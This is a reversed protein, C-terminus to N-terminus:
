SDDGDGAKLSTAISSLSGQIQRLSNLTHNRTQLHKDDYDIEQLAEAWQDIDLIFTDVFRTRSSLRGSYSATVTYRRPLATNKIYEPASDLLYSIGRGPSLLPITRGRAYVRRLKEANEARSSAFPPDVVIEVNRAPRQSINKVRVKMIISRFEFDVVIYPRTLEDSSERHLRLQRWALVGAIVAVIFLLCSYLAQWESPTPWGDINWWPTGARVFPLGSM